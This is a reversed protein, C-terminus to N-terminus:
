AQKNAVGCEDLLNSIKTLPAPSYHVHQAKHKCMASCEGKLAWTLCIPKGAHDPITVDHGEIMAMISSYSSDCFHKLLHEDPHANFTSVAGAQSHPSTGETMHKCHQSFPANYMTYWLAPLPSLSNTHYTLVKSHIDQFTPCETGAVGNAITTAYAFYEQQAEYLVCCVLDMGIAKNNAHQTAVHHLALGVELVFKCISTSIDHNVRHFLDVLISWGWLKETAIHPDVLFCVDTSTLCSADSLSLSTGQKTLEAQKILVHVTDM